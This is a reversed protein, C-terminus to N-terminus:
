TVKKRALFTTVIGSLAYISAVVLIGVPINYTMAALILVVPLM